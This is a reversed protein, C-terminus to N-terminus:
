ARPLRKECAQLHIGAVRLQFVPELGHCACLGAAAAASPESAQEPRLEHRTQRHVRLYVRQVLTQATGVGLAPPRQEWWSQLTTSSKFQRM